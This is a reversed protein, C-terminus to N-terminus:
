EEVIFWIGDVPLADALNQTYSDNEPGCIASASSQGLLGLFFWGQYTGNDNFNYNFAYCSKNETGDGIAILKGQSGEAILGDPYRNNLFNIAADIEDLEPYDNTSIYEGVLIGNDSKVSGLDHWDNRGEWEANQGATIIEQRKKPDSYLVLYHYNDAIVTKMIYNIPKGILKTTGNTYTSVLQQTGQGETNGIDVSLDKPYVLQIKKASDHTFEVTITGTNSDVSMNTIQNYDGIYITVLEGEAKKDYVIYDYVLVKRKNTIDDQQNAYAQITSDAIMVRFNQLTDGKIGKPISLHWKEYFPHEKDDIREALNLNNFNANESDRNYYPSVSSSSYEMIIYPIQFGIYATSEHSNEDRVSCYAWKIEDNYKITGNEDYKGPVLNTESGYSGSGKRYEFGEKEALENIDEITTIQLHPALGAPGVIQGIYLAGGMDNNYDYGRRYVKVNDPNNKNETNILVYEDFGVTKYANGQKFNVIMDNITLFSEKLVFSAGQRGGYFSNYEAM